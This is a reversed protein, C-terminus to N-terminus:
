SRSGGSIGTRAPSRAAGADRPLLPPQPPRDPRRPRRAAAGRPLPARERDRARRARRAGRAAARRRRRVPRRSRALLRRALRDQRHPRLAACRTGRPGSRGCAGGRVPVLARDGAPGGSRRERFIRVSDEEGEERDLGISGLLREDGDGDPDLRVVAADVKPLGAAAELTSGLVDDLDITTAIQGLFRSRQAEEEARSVASSLERALEDMRRRSRRWPRPWRPRSTARPGAACGVCFSSRWCSASASHWLLVSQFGTCGLPLGCIALKKPRAFM